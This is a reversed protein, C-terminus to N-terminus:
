KYKTFLWALTEASSFYFFLPENLIYLSKDKTHLPFRPLAM